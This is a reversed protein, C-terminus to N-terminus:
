RNKAKQNQILDKRDYEIIKQLFNVRTKVKSIDQYEVDQSLDFHPTKHM